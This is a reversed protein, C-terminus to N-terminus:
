NRGQWHEWYWLGGSHPVFVCGAEPVTYRPWRPDFARQDGLLSLSVQMEFGDQLAKPDLIGRLRCTWEISNFSM